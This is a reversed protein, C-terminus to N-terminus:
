FSKIPIAPAINQDSSSVSKLQAEQRAKKEQQDAIVARNADSFMTLVRTIKQAYVSRLQPDTTKELKQMTRTIYLEVTDAAKKQVALVYAEQEKLETTM